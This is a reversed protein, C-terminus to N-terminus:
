LDKLWKKGAKTRMWLLFGVGFILCILYLMSLMDM